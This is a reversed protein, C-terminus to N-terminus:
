CKGARFAHKLNHVALGLVLTATFRKFNFIYLAIDIKLVDIEGIDLALLNELM